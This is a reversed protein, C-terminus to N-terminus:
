KMGGLFEYINVIVFKEFGVLKLYFCVVDMCEFNNLGFKFKLGFFVNGFVDFWM